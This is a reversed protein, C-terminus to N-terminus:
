KQGSEYGKNRNQGTELRVVREAIIKLIFLCLKKRFSKKYFRKKDFSSM